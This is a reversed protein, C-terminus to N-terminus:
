TWVIKIEGQRLLKIEGGIVSVITTPPRELLVGYDLLIDPQAERGSFMMLIEKPDYVDGADSINASTAVLPRGLKETISKLLPHATVRIALTNDRSVVGHALPLVGRKKLLPRTKNKKLEQRNKLTRNFGIM